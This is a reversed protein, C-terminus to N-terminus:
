YFYGRRKCFRMKKTVNSKYVDLLSDKLIEYFMPSIKSLLRGVIDSQNFNGRKLTYSGLSQIIYDKGDDFPLLVHIDTDINNMLEEVPIKEVEFEQPTPNYFDLDKVDYISVEEINELKRFHREIIVM